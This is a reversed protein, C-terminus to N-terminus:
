KGYISVEYTRSKTSDELLHVYILVDDKKILNKRNFRDEELRSIIERLRSRLLDDVKVHRSISRELDQYTEALYILFDSYSVDQNQSIEKVVHNEFESDRFDEVISVDSDEFNESSLRDITDESLDYVIMSEDDLMELASRDLSDLDEHYIHVNEIDFRVHSFKLELDLYSYKLLDRIIVSGLVQAAFVDYPYGYMLDISRARVELHLNTQDESLVVRVANNCVLDSTSSQNTESAIFLTTENTESLEKLKESYVQNTFIQYGYNSNILGNEDEMKKWIPGFKYILATDLRKSAYWYMEALAYKLSSQMGNARFKPLAIENSKLDGRNLVVSRNLLYKTSFSDLGLDVVDICTSKYSKVVASKVFKEFM